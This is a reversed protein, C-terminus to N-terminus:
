LADLATTILGFVLFFIVFAAGASLAISTLFWPMTWWVIGAARDPWDTAHMLLAFTWILTMVAIVIGTMGAINEKSEESVADGM